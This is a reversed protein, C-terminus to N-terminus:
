RDSLVIGQKSGFLSSLFGFFGLLFFIGIVFSFPFVALVIVFFLRIKFIEIYGARSSTISNGWGALTLLVISARRRM